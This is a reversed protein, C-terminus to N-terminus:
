GAASGPAQSPSLACELALTVTVAEQQHCRWSGQPFSYSCAPIPRRSSSFGTDLTKGRQRKLSPKEGVGSGATPPVRATNDGNVLNKGTDTGSQCCPPGAERSLIPLSSSCVAPLVRWQLGKLTETGAPLISDRDSDGTGPM